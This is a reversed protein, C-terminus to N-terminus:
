WGRFPRNTKQGVRGLYTPLPPSTWASTSAACSTSGTWGKWGSRRKRSSSRAAEDEQCEGDDEDPEERRIRYAHHAEDNFVLINKKGGVQRGLVRNVLSADSEVYRVSEVFVKKLAGHKDRDEELVTCCGAAVQRDFDTRRSTATAAPRRRRRASRSQRVLGCPSGRRPSRPARAALEPREAARVRALEHGARAGTLDTLMDPPVLDRTQLHEGPGGGPGTGGVPQSDDREPMGGARHGLVPRRPRYVKNLISWAALMGMVTTKGSGTAMKCAYRLFTRYGQAVKDPGLEECPINLGQRFDARSEMLFM